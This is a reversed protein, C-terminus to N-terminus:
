DFEVGLDAPAISWRREQPMTGAGLPTARWDATRAALRARADEPSLGGVPVGAIRVGRYVRGDYRQTYVLAGILALVLVIALGVGGVVIPIRGPTRRPSPVIALRPDTQQEDAPLDSPQAM